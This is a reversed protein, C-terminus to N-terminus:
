AIRTAIKRMYAENFRAYHKQVTTVNDKLLAAAQEFTGGGQLLWSAASRRLDHIRVDDLGAREVGRGFAKKVSVVPKGKYSIVHDCTRALAAQELLFALPANIALGAPRRKNRNGGTPYIMAREFDVQDWTLELIASARLGTWTALGVFTRVHHAHMGSLLRVFEARTLFRDRAGAPSPAPIFPAAELWGERVGWNLAQRLCRCQKNITSDSVGESRRATHFLKIQARTLDSPGLHGLLRTVARLHFDLTDPSAIGAERRDQAYADCLQRVTFLDPPAEVAARFAALWRQAAEEDLCGTSRRHSRGSESWTVYWARSPQRNITLRGPALLKYDARM